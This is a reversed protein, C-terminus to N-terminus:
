RGSATPHRPAFFFLRHGDTNTRYVAEVAMGVIVEAPPCEIVNSLLRIPADDLQVLAIVYPPVFAPTPGRHVVTFNAVSGRGSVHLWGPAASGCSPCLPLPPHIYRDCDACHQVVLHDADVAAWFPAALRTIQPRPRDVTDTM